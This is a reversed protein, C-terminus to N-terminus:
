RENPAEPICRTVSGLMLKIQWTSKAGLHELVDVLAEQVGLCASYLLLLFKAENPMADGEQVVVKCLADPSM